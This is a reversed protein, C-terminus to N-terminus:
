GSREAPNETTTLISACDHFECTSLDEDFAESPFADLRYKRKRTTDNQFNEVNKM